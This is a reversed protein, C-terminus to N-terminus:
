PYNMREHASYWAFANQPQFGKYSGYFISQIIYVQGYVLQLRGTM